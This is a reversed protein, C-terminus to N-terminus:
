PNENSIDHHKNGAIEGIRNKYKGDSQEEMKERM